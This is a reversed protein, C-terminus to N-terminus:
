PVREVAPNGKSSKTSSFASTAVFVLGAVLALIIVLCLCLFLFGAGSFSAALLPGFGSGIFTACAYLAVAAAAAKKAISAILAILSPAAIAIGGVLVATGTLLLFLPGPIIELLLGAAMVFLGLIAVRRAKFRNILSGAFPSLLLGPLPALRLFILGSGRLGYHGSAYVGLGSSMAVFSLLLVLTAFYASLLAPNGLLKGMTLYTQRVNKAPQFHVSKPLRSVLLALFVYALALIWFVARWGLTSSIALSYMQGLVGALLFAGIVCSVGVSRKAPPLEENIYALAAPTFTTSIFGQVGRLIIMTLLSPSWSVLATVLSLAFLGLVILPLRGYRDSLPGFVLLGLAYAFGFISGTWGAATLSAGFDHQLFGAMPVTVYNSTIVFMGCLSLALVIFVTSSTASKSPAEVVYSGDKMSDM